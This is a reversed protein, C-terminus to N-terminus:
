EIESSKDKEEEVQEDTPFALRQLELQEDLAWQLRKYDKYNYTKRFYGVLPDLILSIIILAGGVSFVIVIGFTSFSIYGPRNRIKQRGCANSSGSVFRLDNNNYLPGTAFDVVQQQLKAMSNAFWSTIEITWQNNPLGPHFSNEVSMTDSARLARYNVNYYTTQFAISIALISSINKQVDNLQMVEIADLLAFLGTLPTCETHAQTCIQYQDACGLVGITADELYTTENNSDTFPTTAMFWPDRVPAAYNLLGQALFMLNVDADTRILEPIPSWGLTDTTGSFSHNASILSTMVSSQGSSTAM